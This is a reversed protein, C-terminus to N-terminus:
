SLWNILLQLHVKAVPPVSFDRFVQALLLVCHKTKFDQGLQM